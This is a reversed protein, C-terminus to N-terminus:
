EIHEVGVTQLPLATKNSIESSQYDREDITVTM